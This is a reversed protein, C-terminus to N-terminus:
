FKGDSSCKINSDQFEVHFLLFMESLLSLSLLLVPVVQVGHVMVSAFIALNLILM